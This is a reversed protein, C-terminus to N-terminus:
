ASLPHNLQGDRNYKPLKVTVRRIIKADIEDDPDLEEISM